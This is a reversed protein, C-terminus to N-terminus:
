MTDKCKISKIDHPIHIISWQANRTDRQSKRRFGGISIHNWLQVKAGETESNTMICPTSSPSSMMKDTVHAKQQLFRHM